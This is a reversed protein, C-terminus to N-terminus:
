VNPLQLNVLLLAQIILLIEEGETWNKPSFSRDRRTLGRGEGASFLYFRSIERTLKCFRDLVIRM